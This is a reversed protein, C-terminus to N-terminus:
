AGIGLRYGALDTITKETIRRGQHKTQILRLMDFFVRMSGRIAKWWLEFAPDDIEAVGEQKLIDAMEHRLLGALGTWVTVRSTLAGLDQMRSHLMKERLIPAAFIAVGVGADNTRDWLQRVVQLVRPKIAECQDFILVCPESRLHEVVDRFVRHGGAPGAPRVALGLQRALEEIFTVTNGATYVDLEIVASEVGTRANAQQKRWHEIAWTKGAGYYGTAVGISAQEACIDILKCAKRLTETMYVKSQRKVRKPRSEGEVVLGRADPPTLIDGNDALDLARSIQERVTATESNIGLRWNRVSSPQLTTHAAIADITLGPIRALTDNFRKQLATTPRQQGNTATLTM